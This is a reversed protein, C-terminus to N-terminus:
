VLHMMGQELYHYLSMHVCTGFWRSMLICCFAQTNSVLFFQALDARLCVYAQILFVSIIMPAHRCTCIRANMRHGFCYRCLESVPVLPEALVNLPEMKPAVEQIALHATQVAPAMHSLKVRHPELLSSLGLSQELTHTHKNTTHSLFCLFAASAWARTWGHTHTHTNTTHSLFCLFAASAWVRDFRTHIHTHTNTIHSPKIAQRPSTRAPTQPEHQNINTHTHINNRAKYVHTFSWATITCLCTKICIVYCTNYTIYERIYEGYRAPICSPRCVHIYLMYLAYLMVHITYMVYTSVMGHQYVLLDACMYTYCTCHM